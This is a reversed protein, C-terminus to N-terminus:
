RSASHVCLDRSAPSRGGVRMVCPEHRLNNLPPAAPHGIPSAGRHGWFPLGRPPQRRPRAAEITGQPTRSLGGYSHCAFQLGTGHGILFTAAGWNLNGDPPPSTPNGYRNWTKSSQLGSSWSLKM